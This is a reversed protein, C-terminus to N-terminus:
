WVDHIEFHGSSPRRCYCEVHSKAAMGKVPVRGLAVLIEGIPGPTAATASRSGRGRLAPTRAYSRTRVETAGSQAVLEVM